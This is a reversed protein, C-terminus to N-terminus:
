KDTVFVIIMISVFKTILMFVVYKPSIIICNSPIVNEPPTKTVGGGGGGSTKNNCKSPALLEVVNVSLLM